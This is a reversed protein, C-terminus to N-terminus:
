GEGTGLAPKQCFVGQGRSFISGLWYKFYRAVLLLFAPFVKQQLKIQEGRLLVELLIYIIQKIYQKNFFVYMIRDKSWKKVIIEKKFAGNCVKFFLFFLYDWVTDTM